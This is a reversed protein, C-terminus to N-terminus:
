QGGNDLRYHKQPDTPPFRAGGHLVVLPEGAKEQMLFHGKGDDALERYAVGKYGSLTALVTQGQKDKHELDSGSHAVLQFHRLHGGIEVSFVPHEADSRDIQRILHFPPVVKNGSPVGRTMAEKLSPKDIAQVGEYLVTFLTINDTISQEQQASLSLFSPLAPGGNLSDYARQRLEQQQAAQTKGEKDDPNAKRKGFAM